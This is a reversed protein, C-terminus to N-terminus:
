FRKGNGSSPSKLAQCQRQAAEFAEQYDRGGLMVDGYYEYPAAGYIPLPPDDPYDEKAEEIATKLQKVTLRQVPFYYLQESSHNLFPFSPDLICDELEIWAHELPKTRNKVVLFGQVYHAGSVALAARHANEFPAKTKSKVQQALEHSRAEDLPKNM